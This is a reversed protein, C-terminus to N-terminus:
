LQLPETIYKVRVNFAHSIDREMGEGIADYIDDPLFLIPKINGKAFIGVPNEVYHYFEVGLAKALKAIMALKFEKDKELQELNQTSLEPLYKELSM